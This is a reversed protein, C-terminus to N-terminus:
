TLRLTFAAVAGFVILGQEHLVEAAEQMTAGTSYIDDVLLARKGPRPAGRYVFAGRVNEKRRRYSLGSQAATPEPKALLPLLPIKLTEATFRALLGAQNYGREAQRRRHLPVSVALEPQWCTEERIQVGLWNGLPRALGRRGGFKFRHLMQRWDGEYWSLAFLGQLPATDVACSCSLGPRLLKG